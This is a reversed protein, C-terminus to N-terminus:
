SMYTYAKIHLVIIFPYGYIALRLCANKWESICRYCEAQIYYQIIHNKTKEM